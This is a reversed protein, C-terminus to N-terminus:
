SEIYQEILKMFRLLTYSYKTDNLEKEVMFNGKVIILTTKRLVVVSRNIWIHCDTQVLNLRYINGM